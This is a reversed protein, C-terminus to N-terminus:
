SVYKKMIYVIQFTVVFFLAFALGIFFGFIVFLNVNPSIKRFFKPESFLFPFEFTDLNHETIITERELKRIKLEIEQKEKELVNLLEATGQVLSNKKGLLNDKRQDLVNFKNKLLELKSKNYNIIIETRNNIMMAQQRMDEQILESCLSLIKLAPKDKAGSWYVVLGNIGEPLSVAKVNAKKWGKLQLSEIIQRDYKGARIVQIVSRKDFNAVLERSYPNILKQPIITFSYNYKIPITFSYLFATVTFLIPLIMFLWKFKFILKVLNVLEREEDTKNNSSNSITQM